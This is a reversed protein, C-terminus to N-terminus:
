FDLGKQRAAGETFTMPQQPYPGRYESLPIATPRKVWKHGQDDTYDEWTIPNTILYIRGSTSDRSAYLKNSEQTYLRDRLIDRLASDRVDKAGPLDNVGRPMTSAKPFGCTELDEQNENEIRRM